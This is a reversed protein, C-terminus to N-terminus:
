RMHLQMPQLQLVEKWHESGEQSTNYFQGNGYKKWGLIKQTTDNLTSPYSFGFDNQLRLFGLFTFTKQRVFNNPRHVYTLGVNLLNGGQSFQPTLEFISSAEVLHRSKTISPSVPIKGWEKVMIIIYGGALSPIRFWVPLRGRGFPCQGYIHLVRLM